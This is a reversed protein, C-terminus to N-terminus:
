PLSQTIFQSGRPRFSSCAWRREGDLIQKAPADDPTRIKARKDQGVQKLFSDAM